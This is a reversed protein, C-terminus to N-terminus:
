LVAVSEQSRRGPESDSPLVIRQPRPLEQRSRLEQNEDELTRIRKHLDRNKFQSHNLRDRLVDIQTLLEKTRM